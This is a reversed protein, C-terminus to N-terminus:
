PKGPAPAIKNYKFIGLPGPGVSVTLTKDKRRLELKGTATDKKGDRKRLQDFQSQSTVKKGEFTLLVDGVQIGLKSGQQGPTIGSVVVDFELRKGDADFPVEETLVGAADYTRTLRAYGLTSLALKGDIRFYSAELERGRDDHRHASRHYGLNNQCPKGDVGFCARELLKGQEKYSTTTRHVGSPDPCPKNDTGFVAFETQYGREDYRYTGRHYGATESTPKGEENFYAEELLRGAADSRRLLALEGKTDAIWNSTEALKGQSDYQNTIKAFGQVTNIPKGNIGFWTTELENGKDDFRKAWRHNGDAHLCPKGDTGFYAAELQRGKDDFRNTYRHIKFMDLCPKNDLGFYALETVNGKDDYRNTWRHYGNLLDAFPQGEPTFNAQELVRNNADLRQKLVVAGRADLFWFGTEVVKDRKDFKTTIRTHGDKVNIPKGDIGFYNVEIQNGREDFRATWRHNGDTHLCPKGDTGFFSREIIKGQANYRTTNRHVGTKDTCPKNDTGFVALEVMNGRGDYRATYRHYGDPVTAPKGEPTFVAEELSRDGADARRKLVLGDEALLWYGTETVKNQRDYKMTTRAHGAKINIPKGDTGFYDREIENGKDDYRSTWRHLGDAHLCPKGDIGFNATEIVKGRANYRSTWRHTNYRDLCPKGDLGFYAAEIMNGKEDYRATWGHYGDEHLTPKGEPTFLREELSRGDGDMRRKLAFAGRDDVIWCSVEQIQGQANWVTTTRCYGEKNAAPKGNLGYWVQEVGLGKEDTRLMWAHIGEKDAMPRGEADKGSSRLTRDAGARLELRFYGDPNAAPKGEANLYREEVAAGSDLERVVWTAAKDGGALPRDKEDLLTFRVEREGPEPNLRLGAADGPGVRRKGAADLLEVKQIGQGDEDRVVKFLVPAELARTVVNTCERYRARGNSEYTVSWLVRDAAHYASAELVRGDGDRTYRYSSELDYSILGEGGTALLNFLNYRVLRGHPGLVDIREIRGDRRYVKFARPRATAEEESLEEGPQPEDELQAVSTHYSTKLELSAAERERKEQLQQWLRYGTVSGAVALVVLVAALVKAPRRKAWRWGREFASVRRAKIPEGNLYRRLDDALEGASAYRQRPQKRLCKQCITDLDRPVRRNVSHCSPSDQEIVKRLTDMATGAQFAPKGTLLEYLIAGLAWIDSAPGVEHTHGLAQEPSMFRPTGLIAGSRTKVTDEDQKKALGFDTIKPLCKELPTGPEGALLINAPKLDRHVIGHTHAYDMARALTELLLAAQYPPLPKGDLRQELSGGEVYELSFYPLGDCEGVEYVQVINPHQLRAVSEAEMRFRALDEPDADIGSRIRKLAVVRKLALHRAKVVIGMGGRGLEGLIEHGPVRISDGSGAKQSDGAAGGTGSGLNATRQESDAENQGSPHLTELTV